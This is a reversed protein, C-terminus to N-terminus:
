QRAGPDKLPALLALLDAPAYPKVLYHQFGLIQALIRDPGRIYEGSVGIIVPREAGRRDRITRAVEWGSLEPMAIDLLVVDPDFDIVVGMVRRGSSVSRVEHGEDTLLMTLTLVSDPDDEAVLIRLSRPASQQDTSDSAASRSGAHPRRTDDSFLIERTVMKKERRLVAPLKTFIEPVAPTETASVAVVDCDKHIKL